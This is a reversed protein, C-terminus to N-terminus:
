AQTGTSLTEIMQDLHGAEPYSGLLRRGIDKAKSAILLGSVKDGSAVYAQALTHMEQVGRWGTAQCAKTAIQIAYDPEFFIGNQLYSRALLRLVRPHEPSVSLARHLHHRAYALKEERLLVQAYALVAEFPGKDATALKALDERAAPNDSRLLELRLRAVELRPFAEPEYHLSALLQNAEQVLHPQGGGEVTANIFLAVLEPDPAVKQLCSRVTWAAETSHGLWLQLRALRVFTERENPSVVSAQRLAKEAEDFRRLRFLCHSLDLLANLRAPSLPNARLGKQYLQVATDFSGARYAQVAKMWSRVPMSRWAVIWDKYLSVNARLDSLFKM